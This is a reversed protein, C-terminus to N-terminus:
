IRPAAALRAAKRQAAAEAKAEARQAAAERLRELREAAARDEANPAQDGGQRARVNQPERPEHPRFVITKLLTLAHCWDIKRATAHEEPDSGSDSALSDESSSHM